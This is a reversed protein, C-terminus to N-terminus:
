KEHEPEQNKSGFRYRDIGTCLKESSEEEKEFRNTIQIELNLEQIM